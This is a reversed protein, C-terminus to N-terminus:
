SLCFLWNRLLPPHKSWRNQAHAEKNERMAFWREVCFLFMIVSLEQAEWSALKAVQLSVVEVRQARLGLATPFCEKPWLVELDMLQSPLRLAIHTFNYSLQLEQSFLRPPIFPFHEWFFSAIRTLLWTHIWEPIVPLLLCSLSPTFSSHPVWTPCKIHRLPLFSPRSIERLVYPFMLFKLCGPVDDLHQYINHRM